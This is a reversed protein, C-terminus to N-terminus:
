ELFLNANTISEELKFKLEEWKPARMKFRIDRFFGYPETPAGFINKDLKGNGDEDLFCKIAYEGASLNTFMYPLSEDGEDAKIILHAINEEEANDFGDEDVIAIYVDGSGEFNVRGSINFFEEEAQLLCSAAISIILTIIVRKM